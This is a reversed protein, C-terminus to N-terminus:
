DVLRVIRANTRDLRKIPQWTKHVIAWQEDGYAFHENFLALTLDNEDAVDPLSDWTPEDSPCEGMLHEVIAPAAGAADYAADLVARLGANKKKPRVTIMEEISRRHVYKCKLPADLTGREQVPAKLGAGYVHKLMRAVHPREKFLKARANPDLAAVLQTWESMTRKSM